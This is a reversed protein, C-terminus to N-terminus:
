YFLCLAVAALEKYLFSLLGSVLLLVSLSM